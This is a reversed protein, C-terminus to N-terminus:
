WRVETKRDSFRGLGELQWCLPSGQELHATEASTQSWMFVAAPCVSAFVGRGCGHAYVRLDCQTPFYPGHGRLCAIVSKILLSM